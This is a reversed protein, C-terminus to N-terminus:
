NKSLRELMKEIQDAQRQQRKELISLQEPTLGQKIQALIDQRLEEIRAQAVGFKDPGATDNKLLAYRAELLLKRTQLFEKRHGQIISKMGERQAQTLQLGAVFQRVRLAELINQPGAAQQKRQQAAGTTALMLVLLLSSVLIITVKWNRMHQVRM